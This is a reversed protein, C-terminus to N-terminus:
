FGTTLTLPTVVENLRLPLIGCVFLLYDDGRSAGDRVSKQRCSKKLERVSANRRGGGGRERSGAEGHADKDEFKKRKRKRREAKNQSKM